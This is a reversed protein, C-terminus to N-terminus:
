PLIEDSYKWAYVTWYRVSFRQTNWAYALTVYATSESDLWMAYVNWIQSADSSNKVYVYYYQGPSVIVSSVDYWDILGGLSGATLASWAEDFVLEIIYAPIITKWWFNTWNTVTITNTPWVTAVVSPWTIGGNNPDIDVVAWIFPYPQALDNWRYRDYAFRSMFARVVPWEVVNFTYWDFTQTADWYTIDINWSFDNLIVDVPIDTYYSGGWTYNWAVWFITEWDKIKEAVLNTDSAIFDKTWDSYWLPIVSSAVGNEWVIDAWLTPMDSAVWLITVWTKINWPLLDKSIPNWSVKDDM